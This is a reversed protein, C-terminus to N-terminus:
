VSFTQYIYRALMTLSMGVILYRLLNVRIKLLSRAGLNAGILQGAIMALGYLWAVQGLSAFIILAAVNSALNLAKAETVSQILTKARLAVGATAFFSGTGPGFMGDYLGIIPVIFQKYAKHSIKPHESSLKLYPSALTYGAICVLVIPIIINIANTDIIQVAFAGILSGLFSAIFLGKLEAWPLRDRKTLFLVVSGTGISSQFKNTGLATLPPLGAIILAPITLLGGGGALVDIYSAIVAVAFLFLIIEISIDM